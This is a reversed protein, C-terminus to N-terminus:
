LMAKSFVISTKYYIFSVLCERVSAWPQDMGVFRGQFKMKLITGCMRSENSLWRNILSNNVRIDMRM